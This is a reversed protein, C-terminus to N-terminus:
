LHKYASYAALSTAIYFLSFTVFRLYLHFASAGILLMPAAVSLYLGFDFIRYGYRSLIMAVIGSLSVAFSLYLLISYRLVEGPNYDQPLPAVLFIPWLALLAVGLCWIARGPNFRTWLRARSLSLNLSELPM